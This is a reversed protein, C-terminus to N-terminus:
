SDTSVIAAQPRGSQDLAISKWKGMLKEQYALLSGLSKFHVRKLRGLVGDLRSMLKGLWEGTITDGSLPPLARDGRDIILSYLSSNAPVNTLSPTSLSEAKELNATLAEHIERLANRVEQFDKQSLQSNTSLMNLIAQLRAQEGLMEQLLGQLAMHFRYRELLETEPSKGAGNSGDLHRALSWNALFVQRDLRHFAEIDSDLEKDVRAFLKDVDGITHQEDRLTFTKGKLALEGSKLGRLLGYEAQRERYTNVLGLGILLDKRPPIFLNLLSTDYVLAANVEPSAYVGRPRPSGTDQYVRRIFAFLEPHDEERLPVYMSREVKQGKFLGKFLFLWLLIAAFAGGFKFVLFLLMAKGQLDPLPLAVLWYALLGALFVFFIYLILFLFLGGIMAVVRLRYAGDLRTIEAPVNAPAPPYLADISMLIIKRSATEFSEEGARLTLSPM